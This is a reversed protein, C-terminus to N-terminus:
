DAAVAPDPGSAGGGVIGLGKKFQLSFVESGLLKEDQQVMQSVLSGTQLIPDTERIKNRLKLKSSLM